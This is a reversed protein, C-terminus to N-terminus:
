SASGYNSPTPGVPWSGSRYGNRTTVEAEIWLRAVVISYGSGSLEAERKIVKAISEYARVAVCGLMDNEIPSIDLPILIEDNGILRM